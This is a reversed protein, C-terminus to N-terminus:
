VEAGWSTWDPRRSRAFLELYPGPSCSEIFTYSEIPKSSHGNPGRPAEFCTGANRRKLLQSGKVGFLLHETQGRFYNGMGFHPKVWTVCTVYRFGWTEILQFGKPLSRNTIWLYLHCDEDAYKGVPLALLQNLSMTAYTPRARGFQDIDGEDGWDWPPDIVITAFRASGLVEDITKAQSIVQRNGDRRQEREQEKVQRKLQLQEQEKSSVSVIGEMRMPEAFPLEPENEGNEEASEQEDESILISEPELEVPSVLEEIEAQQIPEPEQELEHAISVVDNIKQEAGTEMVRQPVPDLSASEDIKAIEEEVEQKALLEKKIKRVFGESVGYADAIKRNSEDWAQNGILYTSIREHKEEDNEPTRIRPENDTEVREVPQNVASQSRPAPYLEERIIRVLHETVGCQRAIERNSRERWKPIILLRAVSRRKDDNTRKLGHTANAGCSYEIADEQTGQKLDVEMASMGVRNAAHYRHFGDALWYSTGDYFVVIVDKFTSGDRLVEALDDVHSTNLEARPQTGGDTRIVSLPLCAQARTGIVREM